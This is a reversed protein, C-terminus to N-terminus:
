RTDGRAATLERLRRYPCSACHRHAWGSWRHYWCIQSAIGNEACIIVEHELQLEKAVKIGDATHPDVLEGYQEYLTKITRLRDSHTSKGAAFGYRINVSEMVDSLDFGQGSKVGDFLEQVRATDKELLLYVFRELTQPKKSIDM